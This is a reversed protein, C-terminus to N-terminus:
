CVRCVRLHEKSGHQLLHLAAVTAAVAVTVVVAAAAAAVAAGSAAEAVLVWTPAAPLFEM